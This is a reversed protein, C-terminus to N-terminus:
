QVFVAILIQSRRPLNLELLEWGDLEVAEFLDFVLVLGVAL